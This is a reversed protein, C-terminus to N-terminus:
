PKPWLEVGNLFGGKGSAFPDTALVVVAPAAADAGADAAPIRTQVVEVAAGGDPSTTVRTGYVTGQGDAAFSELNGPLKPGLSTTRPDWAYVEGFFGVLALSSSLVQFGLPFGKSALDLRTTLAGGSLAVEQVMRRVLPGAAGGGLDTNCGAGLVLLSDKAADYVMDVGLPVNHVDLLLSGGPGAGGASVVQDTDTDIAVVSSRLASCLYTFGDAAVKSIDVGNLLVYLRKRSPVFVASTPEVVGDSDGAQVFASLDITKKAAGGDATERPDIVFIQNRNFRLVYAKDAAGVVVAAPDAYTAGGDKGDDGRVNWTSVVRWPEREDLRAVVDIAQELLFPTAGRAYTTGFRAPYVHRGDVKGTAPDLAVLESNTAGNYSLLLRTPVPGADAGGDSSGGDGGGGADLTADLSADRGPTAPRDYLEDDGFCAVLAAAVAVSSGFFLAIKKM